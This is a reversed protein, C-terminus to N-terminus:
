CAAPWRGPLPPCGSRPAWCASPANRQRSTSLRQITASIPPYYLGAGLGKILRAVILEASGQSLGCALSAALFVSMGTLFM